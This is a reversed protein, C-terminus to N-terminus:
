PLLRSADCEWRAAFDSSSLKVTKRFISNVITGGMDKAITMLEEKPANKV